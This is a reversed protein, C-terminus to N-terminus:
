KHSLGLSPRASEVGWFLAGEEGNTERQLTRLEKRGWEWQPILLGRVYMRCHCPPAQWVETECGVGM